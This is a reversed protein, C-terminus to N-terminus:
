NNPIRNITLSGEDFMNDRSPILENLGCSKIGAVRIRYINNRVIGYKMTTMPEIADLDHRIWHFYYCNFDAEDKPYRIVGLDFYQKDTLKAPFDTGRNANLAAISNYFKGEYYYVETLRRTSSIPNGKDDLIENPRLNCKIRLGTVYNAMQAERYMTNSLIFVSSTKGSAPFGSFKDSMRRINNYLYTPDVDGYCKEPTKEHFRPDVCYGDFPSIEDYHKEIDWVPLVYPNAGPLYQNVHRFMYFETMLNFFQYGVPTINAIIRSDGTSLGDQSFDYSVDYSEETKSLEVMALVRELLIKVKVTVDGEILEFKCDNTPRNTMMVGYPIHTVLGTPYTETDVKDILDHLNKIDSDDYIDPDTNAVALIQYRHNKPLKELSLDVSYWVYNEDDVTYKEEKSQEEFDIYSDSMLQETDTDFIYFHINFVMFDEAVGLEKEDTTESSRLSTGRYNPVCLSVTLRADLDGPEQTELNDETGPLENVLSEDGMCSSLGLLLTLAFLFSYTLKSRFSM